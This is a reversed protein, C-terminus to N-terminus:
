SPSPSRDERNSPEDLSRTRLGGALLVAAASVVGIIVTVSPSLCLSKFAHNMMLHVLLPVLVGGRSRLFIWTDLVSVSVTGILLAPIAWRTQPLGPIFFAPLHWLGWVVGLIITATLPTWRRLMRPLAFGRWGLEEGLPGPDVVLAPVLAPYLSLWNVGCGQPAGALGAVRGALLGAAPYGILVLVYWGIGARWPSLRSFLRRLGATGGSLATVMVASLTPAYVAAYFLPNTAAPWRSFTTVISPVFLCVGGIGWTIGFALAFYLLLQRSESGWNGASAPM